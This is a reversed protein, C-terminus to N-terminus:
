YDRLNTFVVSHNWLDKSERVHIKQELRAFLTRALQNQEVEGVSVLM